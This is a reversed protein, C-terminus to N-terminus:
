GQSDFVKAGNASKFMKKQGWIICKGSDTEPSYKVLFFFLYRSRSNQKLKAATMRVSKFPM